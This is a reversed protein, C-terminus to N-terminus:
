PRNGRQKGPTSYDYHRLFREAAQRLRRRQEDDLPPHVNKQYGALSQVYGEVTGAAESFDPLELAQYLRRIETTPDTELDSFRLEHLRGQPV